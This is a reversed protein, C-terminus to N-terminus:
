VSLMTELRGIDEIWCTVRDGPHLWLPPSMGMAVGPPTGTAIVDGPELTMVQSLYSVIEAVTFVMEATNSSQRTEGNVDCGLALSQPDPLEDTTVLVPGLPLFGDIAKGYTWQSSSLQLDRASLDNAITYGAVVSLADDVPVHKAQRGIVVALEVEYDVQHAVRPISVTADPGVISNAWKAFIVPHEPIPMGSEIAHDRYNLGVCVIKSPRRVPAELRLSALPVPTGAREPAGRLWGVLDDGMPM